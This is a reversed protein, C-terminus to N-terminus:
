LLKPNIRRHVVCEAHAIRHGIVGLSDGVRVLTRCHPCRCLRVAPM